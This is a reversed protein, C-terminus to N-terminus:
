QRHLLVALLSSTVSANALAKGRRFWRGRAPSKKEGPVEAVEIFPLRALITTGAPLEWEGLFVNRRLELAFGAALALALGLGAAGAYLLPRNPKIPKQPLQARDVVTFRESQQRKEMDLAMGAAMKKDLLSKYNEKSMEYDRTIGAMEQERVPLKEMRRQYQDFDKLIRAQEAKRDEVEKDSVSIQTKLGAIQQRTHAFEVPEPPAPAKRTTGSKPQASATEEVPSEDQRQEEIRKVKEIDARLRIVDPHTDSYRGRLVALQEELVESTKRQKAGAPQGPLSPVDGADTPRTAQEWARTQAGLTVEMANLNGDLIVRTQQARNIADRNAELETQLRSLASGLSQEQQPLEGNHQLKYVSVAAELEDLRKKAEGLQTDLFVSTGEAQGERTRLNAEVYLDTLRNAVRMVVVPDPGQYGIRFAATRKNNAGSGVSELTISIDKRMMELLEEEFRTKRADRYLGFDEIIKKLEGGSLLTQRIAAIRDELDSAVTASVFKEPIKQTDILIVAESLYVAPILRVVAVGAGAFLIWALAMVVKRKWITRLISLRSFAPHSSEPEEFDTQPKNVM